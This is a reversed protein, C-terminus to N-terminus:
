NLSTWSSPKGGNDLVLQWVMLDLASRLNSLAEGVIVSWRLLMKSDAIRFFVWGEIFDDHTEMVIEYPHSETFTKLESQIMDCHEKARAVKAWPGDFRHM